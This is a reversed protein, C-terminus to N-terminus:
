EDAEDACEVGRERVVVEAIQAGVMEVVLLAAAAMHSAVNFSHDKAGHTALKLVEAAEEPSGQVLDHVGVGALHVAVRRRVVVVHPAPSQPCDVVEPEVLRRLLHGDKGGRACALQPRGQGSTKNVPLQTHVRLVHQVQLLHLVFSHLLLLLVVAVLTHTAHGTHRLQGGHLPVVAANHLRTHKVPVVQTQHLLVERFLFPHGLGVIDSVGAARLAFGLLSSRGNGAVQRTSNAQLRHDTWDDSWDHGWRQCTLKLVTRVRKFESAPLCSMERQIRRCRSVSYLFGRLKCEGLFKSLSPPCPCM